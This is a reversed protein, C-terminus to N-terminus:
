DALINYLEMPDSFENVSLSQQGIFDTNEMISRFAWWPDFAAYIAKGRQCPGGGGTRTAQQVAGGLRWHGKKYYFAPGGSDGFCVQWRRKDAACFEGAKSGCVKADVRQPIHFKLVDSPVTGQPTTAGWGAAVFRSNLAPAYGWRVSRVYRNYVLPKNLKVLALDRRSHRIIQTGYRVQEKREYVSKKHEGAVVRIRRPSNVRTCHKATLIWQRHVVSGTCNGLSVVFPFQNPRAVYGGVIQAGIQNNATLDTPLIDAQTSPESAEEISSINTTTQPIEDRSCAVLQGVLILGLGKLVWGNRKSNM